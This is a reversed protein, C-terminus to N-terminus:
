CPPKRRYLGERKWGRDRPRRVKGVSARVYRETAQDFLRLRSDRDTEEAQKWVAIRRKSPINAM